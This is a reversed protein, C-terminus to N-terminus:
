GEPVAETRQRFSQPSEEFQKKFARNFSTYNYYGVQYAVETIPLDTSELLLKAHEMRCAVIYSKVSVNMKRRFIRTLYDQNFHVNDAIEQMELADSLHDRIYKVTAEVPDLDMDDSKAMEELQGLSCDIWRKMSQINRTANEFCDAHEPKETLRSLVIKHEQAYKSLMELYRTHFYYFQRKNLGGGVDLEDLYDFLNQRVKLIKGGCLIQAWRGFKDGAGFDLRVLNEAETYLVVGHDELHQSDMFLLNEMEEAVDEIPVTKGVYAILKVDAYKRIMKTYQVAFKRCLEFLGGGDMAGCIAIQSREGFQIVDQWDATESVTMEFLEQAVNHIVFRDLRGYEEAHWTRVMLLVVGFSWDPNISLHLKEIQHEIAERESSTNEYFLDKWFDRAIRRENAEYVRIKARMNQYERRERIVKEFIERLKEAELPKLLFGKGELEMAQQVSSFDARSSMFICATDLREERIWRVLELGSGDPLEVSVLLIDIGQGLILVKAEKLDAAGFCRSIGLDPLKLMAETEQIASRESDVILLNM